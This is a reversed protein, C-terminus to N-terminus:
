TADAAVGKDVAPSDVAPRSVAPSDVAPCGDAPCSVVAVDLTPCYKVIAALAELLQADTKQGDHRLKDALQECATELVDADILRM